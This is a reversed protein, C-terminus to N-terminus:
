LSLHGGGNRLLKVSKLYQSTAHQYSLVTGYDGPERPNFGLETYFGDADDNVLPKRPNNERGSEYGFYTQGTYEM